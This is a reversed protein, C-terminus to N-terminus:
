VELVFTNSAKSISVPVMIDETGDQNVQWARLSTPDPVFPLVIADPNGGPLVEYTLRVRHGEPRLDMDVNWPLEPLVNLEVLQSYSAESFTPPIDSHARSTSAFLLCVTFLITCRSLIM